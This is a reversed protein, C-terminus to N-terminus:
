RTSQPRAAVSGHRRRDIGYIEEVVWTGESSLTKVCTLKGTQAWHVRAHERAQKLAVLKSAYLGEVGDPNASVSWADGRRCVRVEFRSAPGHRRDVAPAMPENSGSEPERDLSPDYM